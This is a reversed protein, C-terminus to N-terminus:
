IFQSFAMKIESGRPTECVTFFLFGIRIIVFHAFCFSFTFIADLISLDCSSATTDCNKHSEDRHNNSSDPLSINFINM